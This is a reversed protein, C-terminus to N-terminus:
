GLAVINTATTATAKVIRARVPLISGAPVAKFLIAVSDDALIVSVDGTVGIYLAKSVTALETADNPM